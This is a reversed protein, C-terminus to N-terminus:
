GDSKCDSGKAARTVEGNIPQALQIQVLTALTHSQM